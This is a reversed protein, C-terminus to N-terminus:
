SDMEKKDFGYEFSEGKVFRFNPRGIEFMKVKKSRNYGFPLM